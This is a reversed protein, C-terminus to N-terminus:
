TKRSNIFRFLFSSAPAYHPMLIEAFDSLMDEICSEKLLAPITLAHSRDSLRECKASDSTRSHTQSQRHCHQSLTILRHIPRHTRESNILLTLKITKAAPPM